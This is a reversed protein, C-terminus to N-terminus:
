MTALTSRYAQWSFVELFTLNVLIVEIGGCSGDNDFEQNAHQYLSLDPFGKGQCAREM